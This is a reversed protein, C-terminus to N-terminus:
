LLANKIFFCVHYLILCFIIQIKLIHLSVCKLITHHLVKIMWSTLSSWYVVVEERLGTSMQVALVKDQQETSRKSYQISQFSDKECADYIIRVIIYTHTLDYISLLRLVIPFYFSTVRTITFFSDIYAKPHYKTDSQFYRLQIFTINIHGQLLGTNVHQM